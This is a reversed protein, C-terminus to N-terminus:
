GILQVLRLQCIVFESATLELVPLWFTNINENNAVFVYEFEFIRKYGYYVNATSFLFTLYRTVMRIHATDLSFTDEHM